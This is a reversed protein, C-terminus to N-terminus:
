KGVVVEYSGTVPADESSKLVIVKLCDGWVAKMRRDTIIREEVSATLGKPYSMTVRVSRDGKFSPSNLTILRKRANIGVDARVVFRIEDPAIRSKLSYRDSIVLRGEDLRYTRTWEDCQAEKPYVGAINASLSGAHRDDGLSCTVDSTRATTGAYQECGNIKPVNHTSSSIHWLKYRRPGFTDKTYAATGPDVLIPCDDVFLICSGCDNHNHSEDNTGGKCCLVWGKGNRLVAQQTEDYWVSTVHERLQKKLAAFSGGASKLYQKQDNRVASYSRLYELAQMSESYPLSGLEFRDKEDNAMKYIAYEVMEKDAIDKGYRYILYPSVNTRAGGDGYCMVWGDGIDTKSKFEGAKRLLEDGFVNIRGHSADYVYRSFEYFKGSAMRWYSPGEDCCGDQHIYSLYNDFTLFIRAIADNLKKQDQEMLMFAIFMDTNCTCNWNNIAHTKRDLGMWPCFQVYVDSMYPEFIKTRMNEQMTESIVPDIKDFEDHLFHWVVAMTAANYGSHLTVTTWEPTPLTRHSPQRGTHAAHSWNYRTCEFMVVDVIKPIFRGQGEALEALLLKDIVTRNTSEYKMLDRNGAKEFELFVSAPITHCKYDLYKEGEKILKTKLQKGLFKDWGERDSYVPYPFWEGGVKFVNEKDPLSALANEFLRNEAFSAACLLLAAVSFIIKKM